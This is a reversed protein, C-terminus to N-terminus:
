PVAFRRFLVERSGPPCRGRAEQARAEPAAMSESDIQRAAAPESRNRRSMLLTGAFHDGASRSLHSPRVRMGWVLLAVGCCPPLGFLALCELGRACSTPRSISSGRIM